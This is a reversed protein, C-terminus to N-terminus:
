TATRKMQLAAARRRKAEKEAFDDLEEAATRYQAGNQLARKGQRLFPM